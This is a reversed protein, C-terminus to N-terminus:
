KHFLTDSTPCNLDKMVKLAQSGMRGRWVIGIESKRSLGVALLKWAHTREPSLIPIILAHMDHFLYM